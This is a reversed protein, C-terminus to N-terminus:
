TILRTRHTEYVGAYTIIDTVTALLVGAANYMNWVITTPLVDTWTILKEVIKKHGPAASDYWVIATPYLTGTVERYAGSAFGTAPGEDIFHILQRLQEHVASTMTGFATYPGGNESFEFRDAAVNYILRGTHALSVGLLDGNTLELGAAENSLDDLRLLGVIREKETGVMAAAGIAVTDTAVGLRVITGSRIWGAAALGPTTYAAGNESFEIRGTVPNYRIRGTGAPSLPLNEGQWLQLGSLNGGSYLVTDYGLILDDM